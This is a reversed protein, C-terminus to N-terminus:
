LKYSIGVEFGLFSYGSNPQQTEFNSVHGINGGLYISTKTSTDFTFGVSLNELFTFGKALRETATDIAAVGIGIQVIAFLKNAIEKQMLFGLELGYLNMKKKTTFLIRNELFQKETNLVFYKNLLQHTIIQVQPQVVLQFQFTQWYGLNYFAQVKFTNTHYYYDTDDFLFNKENANNYLFGIKQPKLIIKKEKQANVVWSFSFLLVFLIKQPTCM